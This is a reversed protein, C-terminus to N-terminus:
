KKCLDFNHVVSEIVQEPIWQIFSDILLQEWLNWILYYKRNRNSYWKIDISAHCLASACLM